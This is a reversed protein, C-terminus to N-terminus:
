RRYVSIVQSYGVLEIWAHLFFFISNPTNDSLSFITVFWVGMGNQSPRRSLYPLPPSFFYVLLLKKTHPSQQHSLPARHLRPFM